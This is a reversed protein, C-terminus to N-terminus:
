LVDHPDRTGSSFVTQALKLYKHFFYNVTVFQQVSRLLPEESIVPISVILPIM